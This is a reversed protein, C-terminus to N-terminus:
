ASTEQLNAIVAGRGSTAAAEAATAFTATAALRGATTPAQPDVVAWRPEREVGIGFPEAAFRSANAAPGRTAAPEAGVSWSVLTLSLVTVGQTLTPGTSEVPIVLDEYTPTVTRTATCHITNATLKAGAQMPEFPPQTIRQRDTLRFFQSTAFQEKVPTLAARDVSGGGITFGTLELRSSGSIPADGFKQLGVDLPAVTQHVALAGLPHLRPPADAAANGADRYASVAPQCPLTRRGPAGTASRPWCRSTSM